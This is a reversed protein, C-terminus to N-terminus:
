NYPGKGDIGGCFQSWPFLCDYGIDAALNGPLPSSGKVQPIAINSVTVKSTGAQAVGKDSSRFDGQIAQSRIGDKAVPGASPTSPDAKLDDANAVAVTSGLLAASIAFASFGVAGYKKTSRGIAAFKTSM